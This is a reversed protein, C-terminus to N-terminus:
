HNSNGNQNVEAGIELEDFDSSSYNSPNDNNELIPPTQQYNPNDIGAQRIISSEVDIHNNGNRLRVM